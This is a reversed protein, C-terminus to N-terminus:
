FFSALQEGNGDGEEGDYNGEEGEEDDFDDDDIFRESVVGLMADRIKGWLVQRGEGTVSSFFLHEEPAVELAQLHEAKRVEMSVDELKDVKTAVVVYQLGEESLFDLLGQEQEQVDRRSDVLVVVLRLSKRNVLYNQLFDSIEEQKAKSLKAYGYGPLDVMIAIDGDKDKCKFTNLGQTRGPTKSSVAVKSRLGILTNLLSSKGVNSRGIFALEPLSYMPMDEVSTYSGAFDCTKTSTTSFDRCTIMNMGLINKKQFSSGVSAAKKGGLPAPRPRNQKMKPGKLKPARSPKGGKKGSESRGGSSKPPGSKSSKNGVKSGSRGVSGRAHLPTLSRDYTSHLRNVAFPAMKFSLSVSLLISVLVLPLLTIRGTMM